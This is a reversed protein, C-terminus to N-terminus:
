DVLELGGVASAFETSFLVYGVGFTRSGRLGVYNSRDANFDIILCVELAM